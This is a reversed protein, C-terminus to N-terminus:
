RNMQARDQRETEWLSGDDDMEPTNSSMCGIQLM